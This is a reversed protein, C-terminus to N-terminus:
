LAMGISEGKCSPGAPLVPTHLEVSRKCGPCTTLWTGDCSPGAPMWSPHKGKEQKCMFCPFPCKQIGKQKKTHKQGNPSSYMARCQARGDVGKRGTNVIKPAVTPEATTTWPAAVSAQAAPAPVVSTQTSMLPAVFNLSGRFMGAHLGHGNPAHVVQSSAAAVPMLGSPRLSKLTTFMAKAARESEVDVSSSALLAQRDQFHAKLQAPTKLHLDLAGEEGHMSKRKDELVRAAFTAIAITATIYRPTM